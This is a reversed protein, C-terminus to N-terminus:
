AAIFARDARLVGRDELLALLEDLGYVVFTDLDGAGKIRRHMALQEPSVRGKTTKVEVFFGVGRSAAFLDPVGATVGQAKLRAAEKKDRKGGNPIAFLVSNSTGRARYQDFATHQIDDEDHNM